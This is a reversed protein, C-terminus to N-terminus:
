GRILKWLGLVLLLSISVSVIGVLAPDLASFLASLTGIVPNDKAIAGIVNTASPTFFGSGDSASPLSVDENFNINIDGKGNIDLTGDLNVNNTIEEPVNIDVDVYNYNNNVYESYNTGGNTVKGTENQEVLAEITQWIQWFDPGRPTPPTQGNNNDDENQPPKVEVIADQLKEKDGVLSRVPVGDTVLLTTRDSPSYTYPTNGALPIYNQEGGLSGVMSFSKTGFEKLTDVLCYDWYIGDLAYNIYKREIPPNLTYSSIDEVFNYEIVKDVREYSFSSPCIYSVGSATIVYPFFYKNKGVTSSPNICYGYSYGVDAKSVQLSELASYLNVPMSYNVGVLSSAKLFLETGTLYESSGAVSFGTGDYFYTDEPIVNGLIGADEITQESIPIDYSLTDVQKQLISATYPDCNQSIVYGAGATGSLVGLAILLEVILNAGVPVVAPASFASILPVFLFSLSSFSAVLAKLFRSKPFKLKVQKSHKM